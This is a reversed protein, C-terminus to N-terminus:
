SKVSLCFRLPSSRVPVPSDEMMIRILDQRSDRTCFLMLENKIDTRDASCKYIVNFVEAPIVKILNHVILLDLLERYQSPYYHLIYRVNLWNQAHIANYLVISDYAYSRNAILKLFVGGDQEAAYEALLKLQQSLNEHEKILQEYIRNIYSGYPSKIDKCDHTVSYGFMFLVVERMKDAIGEMTCRGKIRQMWDLELQGHMVLNSIDHFTKETGNIFLKHFYKKQESRNLIVCEIEGTITSISFDYSYHSLGRGNSGDNGDNGDNGDSLIDEACLVWSIGSGNCEDDRIFKAIKVDNYYIGVTLFEFATMYHIEDYVVWGNGIAAGHDPPLHLLVIPCQDSGVLPSSLSFGNLYDRTIIDPIRDDCPLNPTILPYFEPPIVDYSMIDKYIENEKVNSIM